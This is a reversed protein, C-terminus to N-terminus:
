KKSTGKISVGVHVSGMDSCYEVPHTEGDSRDLIQITFPHHCYIIARGKQILIRAKANSTPILPKGTNSVVAAM